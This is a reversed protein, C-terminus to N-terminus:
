SILDKFEITDPQTEVTMSCTPNEPDQHFEYTIATVVTNVNVQTAGSGIHNIMMGLRFVNKINKFTVKLPTRETGYWQFAMKALTELEARDDRIRGGIALIPTGNDTGVITNPALYDLRYHDGADIILTELPVDAPLDADAPFKGEAYSDAEATVTVRLTSYDLEPETGSAETGPDSFNWHNLATTHALGGNAQLLVGPMSQQMRLHYSGFGDGVPDSVPTSGAFECNTLKDILQWRDTSTAVQMIGLAPMYEPESGDPTPDHIDDLDHYNAGRILRTHNQFRLGRVSLPKGGVVSGTSRVIEPIAWNREATNGDGSKGNWTPPIRFASYVRYYKEERRVADNNEEQEDGSLAAYDTPSLTAAVGSKYTAEAADTWDKVLTGDLLGVTITSTMREGRVIIQHYHRSLDTKLTGLDVDIQSDFDVDNQDANAPLTGANPLSLSITSLSAVRVTAPSDFPDDFDTDLWWVFGRMPACIENLVQLPTKRDSPTKPYVGVVIDRDGSDLVYSTPRQLGSKDRPGHYFLVHDINAAASWDDPDLSGDSFVFLDDENEEPHMNGRQRTSNDHEGPTGGNFVMPREIRVSTPSAFVVASDIQDRNLFYKLDVAAFFQTGGQLKNVGSVAKVSARDEAAGTIYGVWKVPDIGEPQDITIRVYKGSLSLRDSNAFETQGPQIVDGMEYRIAASDYANCKISLSECYLDYNVEWEVTDVNFIEVIQAPVYTIPGIPSTDILAM